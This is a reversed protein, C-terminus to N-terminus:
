GLAEALLDFVLRIRRSTHLERHTVLWIPFTIPPMDPLVPEVGPTRAAVDDSMLAIGLGQRVLEWAVIINESGVKFNEKSVKIGVTGLFEIIRATDGTGIFDYDTLAEASTPRGRAELYRSAAYPRGTAEQVLRATLDPQEPRVHRIAIDADRHLLDSIANDAVIDIEIGPAARRIDAVIPPLLTACMVDSATIRVLGEVTQSAGSATLSIRYAAEAMARTHALLDHGAETLVLSRGTREFLTVGLGEELGAVQRGLTPQTLNLARAAASFSGEEATALFARIQNWDYSIADWNMRKQM